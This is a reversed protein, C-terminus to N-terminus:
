RHSALIAAAALSGPGGTIGGGPHTGSGCLILGPLPTLHRSCSAAPRLSFMQDLGHEGHHIHGETLGYRSELDAPSLVEGSLIREPLTPAYVALTQVVHDALAKKRDETWGGRVHYPVFHALISVVHNGSPALSPESLSPVRVDLIPRAPYEGYKVPDFARELDDLEEGTRIAEFVGGPRGAFDLPGSLALNVKATTGRCRWHRIAEEIEAPLDRPAIMEFFTRKPDCSSLVGLADIREGGELEVGRVKGGEVLIRRVPSSTRIEAGHARCSEELARTLVAAGGRIERGTLAEHLLLNAASGASWPGLWTGAVSEGALGARLLKTEFWEGVYDGVCMPLVRLVDLMEDESLRRLALGRRALDWLDGLGQAGLKPAPEDQLRALFNRIRGLFGRWARYRDADRRSFAAIEPEARAPDRYLLLGRGAAQPFYVPVEDDRWVLGHRELQLLEAVQPRFSATDHLLGPTRFGPRFEELAGLGGLVDRREVVLLKRGNKALLAAAVLGNHGGGIVIFDYGM